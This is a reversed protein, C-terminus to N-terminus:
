SNENAIRESLVAHILKFSPCLGYIPVIKQNRFNTQNMKPLFHAFDRANKQCGGCITNAYFLHPLFHTSIEVLGTFSGDANKSMLLLDMGGSVVQYKALFQTNKRCNDSDFNTGRKLSKESM